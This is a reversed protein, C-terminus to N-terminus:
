GPAATCSPRCRAGDLLLVPGVDPLEQAVDPVVRGRGHGRHVREVPLVEAEELVQEQGRDLEHALDADPRPNAARVVAGLGGELADLAARLGIRQLHGVERRELRLEIRERERLGDVLVEGPQVGERVVPQCPRRSGLLGHPARHIGGGNGLM